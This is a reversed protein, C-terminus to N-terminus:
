FAPIDQLSPRDTPKTPTKKRMPATPAPSDAWAGRHAAKAQAELDALLRQYSEASIGRPHAINHGHIRALGAAVLLEALDGAPTEIVAFYRPLQSQGKADEWRTRVTFNGTLKSAAFTTAERGLQYLRKKRVELDKAQDSTRSKFDNSTEAADVFYLRFIREKGAARVHFSDGDNSRNEILRCNPITEWPAATATPLLTIALLAALIAPRPHM